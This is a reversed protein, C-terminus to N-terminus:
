RLMPLYVTGSFEDRSASDPFSERKCVRTSISRRALWIQGRMQQTSSIAVLEDKCSCASDRSADCRQDFHYVSQLGRCFSRSGLDREVFVSQNIMTVNRM